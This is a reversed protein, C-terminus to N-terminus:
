MMCPACKCYPSAPYSGKECTGSCLVCTPVATDVATRTYQQKCEFSYPTSANTAWTFEYEPMVTLMPTGQAVQTLELCQACANNHPYWGALCTSVCQCMFPKALKGEGIDSALIEEGPQSVCKRAQAKSSQAPNLSSSALALTFYCSYAPGANSASATKPAM